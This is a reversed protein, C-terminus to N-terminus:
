IRYHICERVVLIPCTHLIALGREIIPISASDLPLKSRIEAWTVRFQELTVLYRRPRKLVSQACLLQQGLNIM